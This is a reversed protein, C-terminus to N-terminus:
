QRLANYDFDVFFYTSGYEDPKFMELTTTFYDRDKGFDYHQQINQASLTLAFAFFLVASLKKM